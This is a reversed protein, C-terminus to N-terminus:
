LLLEEILQILAETKEPDPLSGQVSHSAGGGKVEFIASCEKFIAKCDISDLSKPRALVVLSQSAQKSILLVGVKEQAEVFLQSLKRLHDLPRDEYQVIYIPSFAGLELDDDMKELWQNVENQILTETLHYHQGKLDDMALDRKNLQDLLQDLPASYKKTLTELIRHQEQIYHIFRYGCVFEIRMGGKYNESKTIKLGMVESTLSPHTGGCPSHDLGEIVVIRINDEVKPQKRLPLAELEEDTPYVYSIKLGQSILEICTKEVTELEESTLKQDIDISTYTDSLHFGITKADFDRYLVASLIHQGNHQQTLDTRRDWDVICLLDEQKSPLHDIFHLIKGDIMQVDLVNATDITGHDAPQGGGEPYFPTKDLILATGKDMEIVELVQSITRAPSELTQDLYTLSTM